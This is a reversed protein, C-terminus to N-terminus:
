DAELDFRVVLEDPAPRQLEIESREPTLRDGIPMDLAAVLETWADRLRSALAAAAREDLPGTLTARVNGVFRMYNDFRPVRFESSRDFEIRLSGFAVDVGADRLCEVVTGLMLRRFQTWKRDTTDSM